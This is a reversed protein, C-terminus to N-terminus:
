QDLFLEEAGRTSFLSGTLGKAYPIEIRGATKMWVSVEKGDAANLWKRRDSEENPRVSRKFIGVIGTWRDMLTKNTQGIKLADGKELPRGNEVLLAVYVVDRVTSADPMEKSISAPEGIRIVLGLEFGLEKPHKIM